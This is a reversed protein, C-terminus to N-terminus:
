GFGRLLTRRSFILEGALGSIGRMKPFAFIRQVNGKGDWTRFIWKLIIM